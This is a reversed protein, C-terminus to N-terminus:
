VGYRKAGGSTLCYRGGRPGTCVAHSACSCAGGYSARASPRSRAPAASAHRASRRPASRDIKPSAPALGQSASSLHRTAMWCAGTASEVQTWEAGSTLVTLAEGRAHKGVVAANASAQARCKLSDATVFLLPAVPRVPVPRVPVTRDPASDHKSTCTAVAAILLAVIAFLACGAGGGASGPAAAATHEGKGDTLMESYSLGSGPLGVTGRVGKRGINITAGPRGVSASVGGKSLNIRVGPFLRISKRFRFGM